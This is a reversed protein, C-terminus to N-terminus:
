IKFTTGRCQMQFKSERWKLTHHLRVSLRETTLVTIDQIKVESRKADANYKYL